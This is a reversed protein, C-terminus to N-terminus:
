ACRIPRTSGCTTITATRRAFRASRRAAMPPSTSARHEARVRHGQGEPRRLHAHLLLRAPARHAGRQDAELHRRRRRFRVPRGEREGRHRLRSQFRRGFGGGRDQRHHGLADGSQPHDGDLPRRRRHDQVPRQRPRRQDPELAHSERGLHGRLARQRQAPRLVLDVAGSHDDRYLVKQWTAGGDKSRFVGREPNRGYPHGLASVYVINPIPPISASARFPRRTRSAWTRGRAAPTPPSTCATARCSTAACNPRAWAWTCSTPTRSRWLWPAWRRAKFSDTPSRGGRPAATPPRGCGAAPPGSTISM